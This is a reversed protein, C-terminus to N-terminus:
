VHFALARSPGADVIWIRVLQGAHAVLPSHEYAFPYGNFVVADPEDDIMKSYDGIQRQPGFFLESGVLVYQAAASRLNPPDIILAGYMGNAMHLLMPETACHYLWAGAHTAVFHYTRSTGPAIPAMTSAPPGSEAHFDVNHTMDTDNVVTVNFMDGIRGHLVPGPVTGNFTWMLQTVGPAVTENVDKIHWTVDHVTNPGLPPLKADNPTWGNPPAASLDNSTADTGASHDTSPDSSGSSMGAVGSMGAMGSMDDMGSMSGVTGAHAAPSSLAAAGLQVRMTMGAQRHGPVTCWGSLPTTVIGADLATTQGPSLMPTQVGNSLRLDHKMSGNNTVRLILHSGPPVTIAAPEIRMDVLSITVGSTATASDITTSTRTTDNSGSNAFAVAAVLVVVGIGIGALTPSNVASKRATGGTSRRGRSFGGRLMSFATLAVFGLLAVVDVVGGIQWTTMSGGADGGAVRLVLGIHLVLLPGYFAPSYPLPRRVVAPAIVPAHAFVMSMVFGLFVAHLQADYVAGDGQHGGTLWLTGGVALWAYGALLGVAMFRTVGRQRVTRRALDFRGLWAALALMAAGCIRVGVDSASIRSGTDTSSVAVTAGAVMLLVGAVLLRRALGSIGLLRSLELREATITVVLFVALWPVTISIDRGSLWLAMAVVWGVAAVGMLSNHTSRQVRDLAIYVIVLGVGAATLLAQGLRPAHGTLTCISGAISLAPVAWSWDRRLATAREIAILTGLFGIAMLAGHSQASTTASPLEYGLRALGGWLGALLIVIGFPLYVMGAPRTPTAPM